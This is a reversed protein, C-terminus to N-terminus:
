TKEAQYLNRAFGIYQNKPPRDKVKIKKEINCQMLKTNSFVLDLKWCFWSLLWIWGQLCQVRMGGASMMLGDSLKMGVFGLCVQGSVLWLSESGM